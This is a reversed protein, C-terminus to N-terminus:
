NVSLFGVLIAIGRTVQDLEVAEHDSHAQSLDGSGFVVTGLGGLRM